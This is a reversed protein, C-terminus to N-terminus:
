GVSQLVLTTSEQRFSCTAFRSVRDFEWQLCYYRLTELDLYKRHVKPYIPRRAPSHPKEYYHWDERVNYSDNFRNRQEDYSRRNTRGPSARSRVRGYRPAKFAAKRSQSQLHRPANHRQEELRIDPELRDKDNHFEFRDATTGPPVPPGSPLHSINLSQPDSPKTNEYPHEHGRRGSNRPRGDDYDRFNLSVREADDTGSQVKYVLLVRGHFYEWPHAALMTSELIRRRKTVIGDLQRAYMLVLDKPEVGEDRLCEEAQKRSTEDLRAYTHITEKLV